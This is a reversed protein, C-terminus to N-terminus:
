SLNSINKSKWVKLLMEYLNKAKVLNIKTFEWLIGHFPHIIQIREVTQNMCAFCLYAMLWSEVWTYYDPKKEGCMRIISSGCLFDMSIPMIGELHLEPNFTLECTVDFASILSRELSELYPICTNLNDTM